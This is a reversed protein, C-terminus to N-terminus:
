AGVASRTGALEGYIRDYAASVATASCHRVSERIQAPDSAVSFGEAIAALQNALATVNDAAFTLGNHRTRILDVNGGSDSALVPLGQALSELIALSCPENTSPLVLWDAEAVKERVGTTPGHLRVCGSLRPDKSLTVLEAAFAQADPESPTPGWLDFQLRHRVSDPLSVLARLLLDWKKWRVWNGLGLLRVQRQRAPPRSALAGTFWSDACCEPVIDIRGPAAALGYHRAMNPTLLVTRIRPDRAGRQYLGIRRAYTHNTFLLPIALWRAAMLMVAFAGRTHAHLIDHPEAALLGRLDRFARWARWALWLHNASEDLANPSRRYDLSPHRTERFGANVWVRHITPGRASVLGRLSTLIGGNDETAGLLHLVKM